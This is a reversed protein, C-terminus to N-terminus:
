DIKFWVANPNVPETTSVVIKSVRVTNTLQTDAPVKFWVADANAPETASVVLTDSTIEPYGWTGDGKLFADDDGADPAPVMGMDGDTGATAGDFEQNTQLFYQAVRLLCEGLQTKTISKAM